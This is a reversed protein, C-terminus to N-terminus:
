SRVPRTSRSPVTGAILTGRGPASMIEMRGDLTAMRDYLNRLGAGDVNRTEFGAGDDSVEFRLNTGDDRLRMSVKVSSGGHKLANQLAERCCYYVAAEVESPYRGLGDATLRINHGLQAAIAGLAHELGEESLLSPYIGHALERLEDLTRDLEDALAELRSRLAADGAAEDAALLLRVRMGVLRQQAGDHLDRELHRREEDAAAAIRARSDSLDRLSDTWAAQLEANELALLATAGAAQLLEPDDALQDDHVIAAARRGDREVETLLQGSGKVPPEVTRGEADAWTEARPRWFALQLGPDGLSRGLLKELEAIPPRRLSEGVMRRLVRGAFLEAAILAFLFGYWILSRAVVLTWRMLNLFQGNPAGYLRALQNLIQALLFVLAIPAGIAFARRRPPSGTAFRWVMLGSTASGLGIVLWRVPTILQAALAPDDKIVLLNSPCAARCASITGGPTAHSSLLTTVTVLAEPGLAAFLLILGEPFLPLRGSPFALILALACLFVVAEWYLGFTFLVPNASSEAFYPIHLLGVLILLPGFRSEPRRRHWYLGVGIPGLILDAKQVALWGPYVLFGARLTVVVAVVAAAFGVAGVAVEWWAVAAPHGLRLLRRRRARPTQPDLGAVDIVSEGKTM